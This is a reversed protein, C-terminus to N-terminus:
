VFSAKKEAYRHLDTGVVFTSFALCEIRVELMKGIFHVCVIIIFM